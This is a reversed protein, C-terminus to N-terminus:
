ASIPKFALAVGNMCYRLGTPKPGDDFVHGLHSGCNSCEIETRVSGISVDDRKTTANPLAQWFSPWGTHSDYKTESKFTPQACGGCAFIGHRHETVLSSSFPKETGAERLVHYSAPALAARWQADTRKFPFNGKPVPQAKPALAIRGAIAAAVVGVSGMGILERRTM